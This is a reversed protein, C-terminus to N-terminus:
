EGDKLLKRFFYYGEEIGAEADLGSVGTMDLVIMGYLWAWMTRALAHYRKRSFHLTGQKVGDRITELYVRYSSTTFKFVRRHGEINFMLKHLERNRSAFHIYTFALSQLTEFIDGAKARAKRLDSTLEEEGREILRRLIDDQSKFHSYPGAVSCGLRVAIHRM